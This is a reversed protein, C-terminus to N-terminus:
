RVLTWVGNIPAALIDIEGFGAEPGLKIPSYGNKDTVKILRKNAVLEFRLTSTPLRHRPNEFLPPFVTQKFDNETYVEAFNYNNIENFQYRFATFMTEPNKSGLAIWTKFILMSVQAKTYTTIALPKASSWFASPPVPTARFTKTITIPKATVTDAKVHVVALKEGENTQQGDRVRSIEIYIIEGPATTTTTDKQLTVTLTNSAGPIWANVNAYGKVLQKITGTQLGKVIATDNLKLTALVGVPKYYNIIYFYPTPQNAPTSTAAQSLSPFVLSVVLLFGLFTRSMFM